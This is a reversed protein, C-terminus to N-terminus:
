VTSFSDPLLDAALRDMGSIGLTTQSLLWSAASGVGSALCGALLSLSVLSKTKM